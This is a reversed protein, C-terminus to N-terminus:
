DTCCQGSDDPNQLLPETAYLCAHLVVHGLEHCLATRLRHERHDSETLTRSIRVRPKRGPSSPQQEKSIQLPFTITFTWTPSTRSWFFRSTTLRYPTDFVGM